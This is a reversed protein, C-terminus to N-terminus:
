RGLLVRAQTAIQALMAATTVPSNRARDVVGRFQEIRPGQTKVWTDVAEGPEHTAAGM